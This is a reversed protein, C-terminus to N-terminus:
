GKWSQKGPIALSKDCRAGQAAAFRHWPCRPWDPEALYPAIDRTVGFPGIESENAVLYTLAIAQLPILGQISFHFDFAFAGIFVLHISSGTSPRIVQSTMAAIACGCPPRVVFSNMRSFNPCECFANSASASSSKAVRACCDLFNLAIVCSRRPLHELIGIVRLVTRREAPVGVGEGFGRLVLVEIGGCESIHPQRHTAHVTM